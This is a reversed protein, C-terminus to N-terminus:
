SRRELARTLRKQETVVDVGPRIPLDVIDRFRPCYSRVVCTRCHEGPSPPYLADVTDATLEAVTAREQQADAALRAVTQGAQDLDLTELWEARTRTPYLGVTITTAWPWKQAAALGYLPVAPDASPLWTVAGSKWDRVHLSTEGTRVAYDIIGVIREGEIVVEFPLEVGLIMAPHPPLISALVRDVEAHARMAEAAPLLPYDPSDMMAAEAVPYYRAMQPSGRDGDIRDEARATFAAALGVHIVRGCVRAIDDPQAPEANLVYRLLFQRLCRRRM